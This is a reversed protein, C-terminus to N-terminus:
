ASSVAEWASAGRVNLKGTSTNYILLGAPPSSIADRQTTTMRPPLLGKTTSDIQVAAAANPSTAGVSLVGSVYAGLTADLYLGWATTIGSLSTATVYIGQLTGVTGSGSHYADVSVGRLTTASADICYALVKLGQQTAVSGGDVRCNLDLGALFTHAGASSNCDLYAGVMYDLAGSGQNGIRWFGAGVEAWPGTSTSKILAEFYTNYGYAGVGGTHERDDLVMFPVTYDVAAMDGAYNHQVNLPGDVSYLGSSYVGVDGTQGVEAVNGMANSGDAFLNDSDLRALAADLAAKTVVQKVASGAGHTAATTGEAGRTVTFTTGSVGTVVMLEDGVKVRFTGATSFAAASAVQLSTAGVTMAAALTSRALNAFQEAM